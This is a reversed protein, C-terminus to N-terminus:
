RCSPTRLRGPRRPLWEAQTRGFVERDPLMRAKMRERILAELKEFLTVALRTPLLIRLAAGSGGLEPDSKCPCSESHLVAVLIRGLGIGGDNGM